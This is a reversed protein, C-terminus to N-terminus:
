LFFYMCNVCELAICMSEIEGISKMLTSTLHFDPLPLLFLSPLLLFSDNFYFLIRCPMNSMNSKPFIFLQLIHSTKIVERTSWIIIFELRPLLMMILKYACAFMLTTSLRYATNARSRCDLFMRYWIQLCCILWLVLLLEIM